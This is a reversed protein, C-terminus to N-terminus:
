VRRSKIEISFELISLSLPDGGGGLYISLSSPYNAMEGEREKRHLTRHIPRKV